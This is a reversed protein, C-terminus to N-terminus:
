VEGTWKKALTVAAMADTGYADAGVYEVLLDDVPGGGIAIKVSDRLGADRIADVTKKMSEFATTLLASLGVMDPKIEKIKEVFVQPPVDVGLDYVEFGNIDLVFAVLDKGIYHIDDAVTGLLVVGKKGAKDMDQQLKPKILSSVQQMIEGGMMLEPIFAQGREYRQGIIELAKQSADMIDKPECGNALMAEAMEMVENEQMDVFAETFKELM